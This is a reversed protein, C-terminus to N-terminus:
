FSELGVDQSMEKVPGVYLLMFSMHKALASVAIWKIEVSPVNQPILCDLAETKSEPCM